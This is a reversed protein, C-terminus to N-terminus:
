LSRVIITRCRVLAIHQTADAVTFVNILRPIQHAQSSTPASIEAESSLTGSKGATM